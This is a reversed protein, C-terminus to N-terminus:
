GIRSPMTPVNMRSPRNRPTMGRIRPMNSEHRPPSSRQRQMVLTTNKMPSTEHGAQHVTGDSRNPRHERSAAAHYTACARAADTPGGAGASGTNPLILRSTATDRKQRVSTSAARRRAYRDERRQLDHPRDDAVLDDGVGDVFAAAFMASPWDMATGSFAEPCNGGRTVWMIVIPSFVPSSSRISVM